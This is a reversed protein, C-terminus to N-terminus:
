LPPVKMFPTLSRIFSAKSAGNGERGHSFVRTLLHKVLCQIQSHRIQFKVAELSFSIKSTGTVKDIHYNAAAVWFSKSVRSHDWSVCM